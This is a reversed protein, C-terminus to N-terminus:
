GKDPYFGIMPGQGQHYTISYLFRLFDYLMDKPHQEIVKTLKSAFDSIMIVGQDENHGYCIRVFQWM